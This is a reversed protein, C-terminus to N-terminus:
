LVSVLICHAHNTLCSPIWCGFLTLSHTGKIPLMTVAEAVMPATCAVLVLLRLLFTTLVETQGRVEPVPMM